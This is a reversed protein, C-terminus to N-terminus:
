LCAIRSFEIVSLFNAPSFTAKELRSLDVPLFAAHRSPSLITAQVLSSSPIFNGLYGRGTGLRQFM